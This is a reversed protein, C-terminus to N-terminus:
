WCCLTAIGLGVTTPPESGVECVYSSGVISGFSQSESGVLCQCMHTQRARSLTSILDLVRGDVVLSHTRRLYRCSLCKRGTADLNQGARSRSAGGPASNEAPVM